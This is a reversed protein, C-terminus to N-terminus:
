TIAKRVRESMGNCVNCHECDAGVDGGGERARRRAERVDISMDIIDSDCQVHCMDMYRNM